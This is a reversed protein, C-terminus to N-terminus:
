ALVERRARLAEVAAERTAELEGELAREVTPVLSAGAVASSELVFDAGAAYLAEAASPQDATVVIRARPSMRRAMQLLRANSTGKLFTDSVTSIVVRAGHLGVHHLTDPHGVDAYVCEVGMADLKAKVVPNFDVVRILPLLEPRNRAVEDVFASAIRFFGLLVIPREATEGAEEGGADLDRLGIARLGRSLARQLEHSYQIMYTSAVALISFVWILRTLTTADTHGLSAGISVIVLSFESVQALNITPLLSARHGARLASLVPLVGLFRSAVALVALVLAGAVIAAEPKPIQMALGVFFLTIFFDRISVVKGIVDLNYPFTALSVGAILAGMEMSLGVSPHSAVLAVLFCWGISVVLMLEPLKAIAGFLWPLAYRSALLAAAVVGGGAAFTKLLAGVAPDSLNPQVALLIIAWLDQFVLVGVTIRGPLTDLEFKEFLLKVVIMTSSLSLGIALYTRDFRPGLDVGIAALGELAAFIAAACLPFQLVGTVIVLRGAALMKKLDIELGIMFLLLILGIEAITAIQERDEILGLGIPGIAVGALLYGLLLPQRLFKMAVGAASAVVMALAINGILGHGGGADEGAFAPSALSALVVVAAAAVLATRSLMSVPM